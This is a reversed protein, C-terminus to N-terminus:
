FFFLNNRDCRCLEDWDWYCYCCFFISVIKSAMTICDKKKPLFFEREKRHHAHNETIIRVHGSRIKQIYDFVNLNKRLKLSLILIQLSCIRPNECKMRKKRTKKKHESLAALPKRKIRVNKWRTFNIWKHIKPNHAHM